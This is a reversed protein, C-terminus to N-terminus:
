CEGAHQRIRELLDSWRVTGKVVYDVAGLERAQRLREHNFDASYMLVPIGSWGPTARIAKLCEIGDIEPMMVDLVVLAPPEGRRIYELLDKGCSLARADLGKRTLLGVLASASDHSDDVVLIM